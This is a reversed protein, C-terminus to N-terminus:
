AAHSGKRLNFIYKTGVEGPSSDFSGGLAARLGNLIIFVESGEHGLVASFMSLSGIFTGIVLVTVILLSLAINQFILRESRHGLQIVYALRSLDNRILAVDAAALAADSGGTGMAIGVSASALAPADNIGDGVMAVNQYKRRLEDIQHVKDEPLLSAYFENIGVQDAIAKATGPNDGTLMIVHKVGAKKILRVLDRAEPRITDALAILGLIKQDQAVVVVTQGQDQVSQHWSMMKPTFKFGEELAAQPKLISVLTEEVKGKAGAATIAQFETVSLRSLKRDEGAQVIAKALPHESFYEVSAAVRLVEREDHGDTFIAVVSPKGLTLTGTKDLAVAKTRGLTELIAGGKILVGKKAASGIAAVLTVPTSIALACPSAAVLLTIAKRIWTLPNEASLFLPVLAVLICGILVGPTYVKGFREVFLQSQGKQKQAQEVLEIIKSVTNDKFEKTSEIVLTGNGNLTGAFVFSGPGRDTPISEGTVAAENISSNGERIVGDVPISEGPRVRIKEGVHVQEVEMEVENGDRLVRAKPPVLDMLDRIAYRTRQITYGELAESISYLAAVLAAERWQGLASAGVIAATMLFEIGVRKEEWFEEIAERAFYFAGSIVAFGFFLSGLKSDSQTWNVIFGMAVMSWALASAWVQRNGLLTPRVEPIEGGCHDSCGAM